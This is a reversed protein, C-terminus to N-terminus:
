NEIRQFKNSMFIYKKILDEQLSREEKRRNNRRLSRVWVPGDDGWFRGYLFEVLRPMLGALCSTAACERTMM